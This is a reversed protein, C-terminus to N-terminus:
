RKDCGPFSPSPAYIFEAAIEETTGPNEEIIADLLAHFVDSDDNNKSRQEQIRRHEAMLSRIRSSVCLGAM